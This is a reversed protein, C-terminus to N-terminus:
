LQFKLSKVNELIEEDESNELTSTYFKNVKKIFNQKSVRFKGALYVVKQFDSFGLNLMDM